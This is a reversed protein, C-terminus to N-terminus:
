DQMKVPLAEAGEALPFHLLVSVATNTLVPALQKLTGNYSALAPNVHSIVDITNGVMGEDWVIKPVPNGNLYVTIGTPGTSVQMNQINAAQARAIVDPSLALPLANNGTLAAIDRASVGMISPVGQDDYKVEFKAVTSPDVELSKPAALAVEDTAFPVEAAGAAAPFKIAVSLGLRQIIPALKTLIQQLAEGQLGLQPGLLYLVDGLKQIGEPGWAIGPLRQGNVMIALGDGSDRLELHQIGAAQMQKVLAPDLQGLATNLGLAALPLGEVGIAGGEDATLVVRPLAILFTEGSETEARTAPMMAPSGCASVILLAVMLFVFM